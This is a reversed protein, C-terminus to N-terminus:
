WLEKGEAKGWDVETIEEEGNYEAFVDSLRVNDNEAKYIIIKKDIVEINVEDDIKLALGSLIDKTLRLGQSNGWKKIKAIM